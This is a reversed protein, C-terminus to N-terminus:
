EKLEKQATVIEFRQYDGANLSTVKKIQQEALLGARRLNEILQPLDDTKAMKGRLYSLQQGQSIKFSELSSQKPLASQVGQITENFGASVTINQEYIIEQMQQLAQLHKYGQALVVAAALANSRTQYESNLLILQHKIEYGLQKKHALKTQIDDTKWAFFVSLALAGILVLLLAALLHNFALWNFTQKVKVPLLNITQKM